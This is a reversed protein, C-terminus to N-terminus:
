LKSFIEQIASIVAQPNEIPIVHGGKIFTQKSNPYLKALSNRKKILDKEYENNGNKPETATLIQIPFNLGEVPYGLVQEGSENIAALERKGTTSLVMKMYFTVWWSWNERAGAGKMQLPHTSDVLVLGLVESPYKRAFLQLYLGGLSHGVLIYPPHIRLDKLTARLDEIIQNADRPRNTKDSNGIGPRNYAFVSHTRSIEPIIKNWWELHGELGNEFVVTPQKGHIHVFELNEGRVRNTQKSNLSTCSAFLLQFLFLFTLPVTKSMALRVPALYLSKIKSQKGLKTMAERQASGQM